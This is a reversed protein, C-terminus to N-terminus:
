SQIDDIEIEWTAEAIERAAKVQVPTKLHCGHNGQFGKKFFDPCWIKRAM